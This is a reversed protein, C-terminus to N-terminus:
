YIIRTSMKHIITKFLLAGTKLLRADGFQGITFNSVNENRSFLIETAPNNMTM